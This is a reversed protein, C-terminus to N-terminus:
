CFWKYITKGYFVVFYKEVKLFWKKFKALAQNKKLTAKLSTTNKKLVNDFM